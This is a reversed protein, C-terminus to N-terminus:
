KRPPKKAPKSAIPLREHMAPPDYGRQLCGEVALELAVNAQTGLDHERRIEDLANWLWEPCVFTVNKYKAGWRSQSPM